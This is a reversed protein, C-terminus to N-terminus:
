EEVKEFDYHFNHNGIAMFEIGERKVKEEGKVLKPAYFYLAGDEFVVRTPDWGKCADEVALMCDPYEELDQETVNSISAFQNEQLIVSSISDNDFDWQNEDFRYRNLVVAAVAVKGEYSEGRAEKWVLKAMMIKEEESVEYYYVQSPGDSSLFAKPIENEEVSENTTQKQNQEKEEQVKSLWIAICICTVVLLIAILGIFFVKPMLRDMKENKIRKEEMDRMLLCYQYKHCEQCRKQKEQCDEFIKKVKPKV